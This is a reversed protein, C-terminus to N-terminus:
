VDGTVTRGSQCPHPDAISEDVRGERFVCEADVLLDFVRSSTGAHHKRDCIAEGKLALKRSRSVERM